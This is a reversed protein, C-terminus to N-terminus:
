TADLQALEEDFSSGPDFDPVFEELLIATDDEFSDTSLVTAVSVQEVTDTVKSLDEDYFASCESFEDDDKEIDKERPGEIDELTPQGAEDLAVLISDFEEDDFSSDDDDFESITETKSESESDIEPQEEPGEGEPQVSPTRKIFNFLLPQSAPVAPANPDPIGRRIREERAKADKETKKKKLLIRRKEKERLKEAKREREEEREIRAIQSATFQFRKNSRQYRRRVTRSKELIVRPRDAM